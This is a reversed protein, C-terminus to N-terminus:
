IQSIGCFGAMKLNLQTPVQRNRADRLQQHARVPLRKQVRRRTTEDLLPSTDGCEWPSFSPHGTRTEASEHRSPKAM